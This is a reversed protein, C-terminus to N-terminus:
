KRDNEWIWSDRFHSRFSDSRMLQLLEERTESSAAAVRVNTKGPVAELSNFDKHSAIFTEAEAETRFTAVILYYDKRQQIEPEPQTPSAAPKMTKRASKKPPHAVTVKPPIVSAYQRQETQNDLTSFIVSLAMTAVIILSAAVKAFTKNVPIYYYKDSFHREKPRSGPKAEAQITVPEEESISSASVTEKEEERSPLPLTPMGLTLSAQLKPMFPIFTIRKEEGSVLSGLRGITVEGYTELNHRLQATEKEMLVVAEAFSISNRRAISNALLGDNNSVAANFRYETYPPTIEATEEIIVAPHRTALFAGFGPVIVCDHRKLLYEIHLALEQM